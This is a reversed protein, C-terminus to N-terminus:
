NDAHVEFNKIDNKLYLDETSLHQTYSKVEAELRLMKTVNYKLRHLSLPLTLSM